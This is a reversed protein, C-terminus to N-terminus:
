APAPPVFHAAGYNTNETTADVHTVGFTAAPIPLTNTIRRAFVFRIGGTWENFLETFGAPVTLEPAPGKNVSAGESAAAAFAYEREFAPHPQADIQTVGISTTSIPGLTNGSRGNNSTLAAWPADDATIRVMALVMEDFNGTPTITPTAIANLKTTDTVRYIAASTTRQQSFDFIEEWDAGSWAYSRGAGITTAIALIVDGVIINDPLEFNTIAEGKNNSVHTIKLASPPAAYWTIQTGPQVGLPALQGETLEIQPGSGSGGSYGGEDPGQATGVGAEQVVFTSGERPLACPDCSGPWIPNIAMSPDQVSVECPMRRGARYYDPPCDGEYFMFGTMFYSYGTGRGLWVQAVGDTAATFTVSVLNPNDGTPIPRSNDIETASQAVPAGNVEISIMGYPLIATGNSEGISAVEWAAATYTQGARVPFFARRGYTAVTVNGDTDTHAFDYTPLWIPKDPGEGVNVLAYHEPLSGSNNKWVTAWLTNLDPDAMNVKAANTDLFLTRTAPDNYNNSYAASELAATAAATGYEYELEWNRPGRPARYIHRFGDVTTLASFARESEVDNAPKIGQLHIWKGYLRLWYPSLTDPVEPTM